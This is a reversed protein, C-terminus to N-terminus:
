DRARDGTIWERMSFEWEGYKVAMAHHRDDMRLLHGCPRRAIGAPVHWWIGPQGRLRARQVFERPTARLDFPPPALSREIGTGGGGGSIQDSSNTSSWFILSIRTKKPEPNKTDTM